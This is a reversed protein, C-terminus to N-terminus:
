SGAKVLTKGSTRELKELESAMTEEDKLNQGLLTAADKEGMAKAMDILGKYAVIEYHETKQAAGILFLTLVDPSPKEKVFQDHEKLLGIMGACPERKPKIGLSQCCEELRQVHERTQEAHKEFGQRLKDDGAEQALSPLVELLRHEADYLDLLEHEFLDRPSNMAM